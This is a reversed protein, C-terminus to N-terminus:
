FTDCKSNKFNTLSETSNQGLEHKQTKNYNLNKLKTVM